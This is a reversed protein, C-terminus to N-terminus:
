ECGGNARDTATEGLSRARSAAAPHPSQGRAVSERRWTWPTEPHGAGPPSVKNVRKIFVEDTGTLGGNSGYPVMQGRILVVAAPLPPPLRSRNPASGLIRALGRGVRPVMFAALDLSLAASGNSTTPEAPRVTASSRRPREGGRGPARSSGEGAPPGLPPHRLRVDDEDGEVGGAGVVDPAVAVASARVGARSARARRPTRKACAAVTAGSVSGAWEDIM